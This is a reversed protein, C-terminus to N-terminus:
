KENIDSQLYDKVELFAKELRVMRDILFYIMQSWLEQNNIDGSQESYVRCVQEGTEKEYVYDWTLPEGFESEFISKCALLKEYLVLRRDENSHNIELAVQAKKRDVDFRLDLGKIGTKDFIWFIKRGKQAPLRRTRNNLKDWFELRIAKAEEKNNYM